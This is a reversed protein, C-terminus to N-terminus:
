GGFRMLNKTGKWDKVGTFDRRWQVNLVLTSPLFLSFLGIANFLECVFCERRMLYSDSKREEGIGIESESRRNRRSSEDFGEKEIRDSEVKGAFV